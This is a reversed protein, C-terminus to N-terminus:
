VSLTFVDIIARRNTLVTVRFDVRFLSQGYDQYGDTHYSCNYPANDMAHRIDFMGLTETNLEKGTNQCIILM